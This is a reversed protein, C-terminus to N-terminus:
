AFRQKVFLVWDLGEHYPAALDRVLFTAEQELQASFWAAWAPMGIIREGALAAPLVWHLQPGLEAVAQGLLTLRDALPLRDLERGHYHRLDLPIVLSREDSRDTGVVVELLASDLRRPDPPLLWRHGSDSAPYEHGAFPSFFGQEGNADIWYLRREFGPLHEIRYRPERLWEGFRAPEEGMLPVRLRHRDIPFPFPPVRQGFSVGVQATRFPLASRRYGADLKEELVTQFAALIAEFTGFSEHHAFHLRDPEEGWQCSLRCRSPGASAGSLDDLAIRVFREASDPRELLEEALLREEM